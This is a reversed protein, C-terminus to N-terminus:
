GKGGREERGDKGTAKSIPGKGKERAKKGGTMRGKRGKSTPRKFGALLDPSRQLSGLPTKPRLGLRFRIQHVKAKFYSM